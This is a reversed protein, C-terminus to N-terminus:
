GTTSPPSTSCREARKLSVQLKSGDSLIWGNMTSIAQSASQRNAFSVFGFCQSQYTYKDIFVKASVVEGFNLFLQCLHFDMFYAPLNNIYINCGEPGRMQPQHAAPNPICMLPPRPVAVIPAVFAAAAAAAATAQLQPPLNQHLSINARCEQSKDLAM